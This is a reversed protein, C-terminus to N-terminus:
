IKGDKGKEDAANWGDEIEQYFKKKKEGDLESVDQIGYKKLMNNFFDKYSKSEQKLEEKLYEKFKGM